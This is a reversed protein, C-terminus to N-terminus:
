ERSWTTSVQERILIGADQQGENDAARANVWIALALEPAPASGFAM